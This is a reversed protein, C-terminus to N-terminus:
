EQMKHTVSLVIKSNKSNADQPWAYFTVYFSLFINIINFLLNSQIFLATCHNFSLLHTFLLQEALQYDIQV